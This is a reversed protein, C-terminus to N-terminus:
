KILIIVSLRNEWIWSNYSLKAIQNSIIRAESGLHPNVLLDFNWFLCRLIRIGDLFGVNWLSILARPQLTAPEPYCSHAAGRRRVVMQATPGGCMPVLRHVSPIQLKSNPIQFKPIRNQIKSKLNPNQHHYTLKRMSHCCISPTSTFTTLTWHVPIKLPCKFQVEYWGVMFSDTDTQCVM